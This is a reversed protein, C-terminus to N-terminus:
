LHDAGFGPDRDFEANRSVVDVLGHAQCTLEQLPPRGNEVADLQLRAAFAAELDMDITILDEAFGLEVAEWGFSLHGPKELWSEARRGVPARCMSESDAVQDCCRIAENLLSKTAIRPGATAEKAGSVLRRAM